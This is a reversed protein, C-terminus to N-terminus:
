MLDLKDSKKFHPKSIHTVPFMLNFMLDQKLLCAFLISFIKIFLDMLKYPKSFKMRKSAKDKGEQFFHFFYLINQMSKLIPHLKPGYSRM